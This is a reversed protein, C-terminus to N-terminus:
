VRFSKDFSIAELSKQTCFVIQHTPYIIDNDAM